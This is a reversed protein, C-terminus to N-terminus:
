FFLLLIFYFLIFNIGMKGLTGKEFCGTPSGAATIETDTFPVEGLWHWVSPCTRGDLTHCYPEGLM